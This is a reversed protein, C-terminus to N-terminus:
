LDCHIVRRLVVTYRLILNVPLETDYSDTCPSFM